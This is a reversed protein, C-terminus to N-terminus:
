IEMIEAEKEKFIKDIDGIYKDTLKQIETEEKKRTDETYTEDKKVKEMADRRVNRLSVKGEECYVKAKKVLEKRRDETLAPIVLRIQKGDIIPNIGINSQNIAAVITKVDDGDYPIILLQRPEPIKISAIQTILTKEGYYDCEINEILASSARGTRLTALNKKLSSISKDMKEELEILVDESM